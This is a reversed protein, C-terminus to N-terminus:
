FYVRTRILDLPHTLVCAFFNAFFSAFSTAIVLKYTRSAQFKKEEEASLKHKEFKEERDFMESDLNLSVCTAKKCINYIPFYIGSFPVDRVLSVKLGTYYGGVGEQSYIKKIADYLGSYENFSLVEMRTKIVVLPNCSVSQVIRAMASALTHRRHEGMDVDELKKMFFHLSAFYSGANMTNKVISPTFGRYFGMAGEKQYVLKTAEAFGLM